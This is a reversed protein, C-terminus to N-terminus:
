ASGTTVSLRADLGKGSAAVSADLLATQAGAGSDIIGFSAVGFADTKIVATNSFEGSEFGGKYTKSGQATATADKTAGTAAEYLVVNVSQYPIYDGSTDTVLIDVKSAVGSGAASNADSNETFGLPTNASGSVYVRASTGKMKTTIRVANTDVDAVVHNSAVPNANIASVLEAATAASSDGAGDGIGSVTIPFFNRDGESETGENSVHIVLANNTSVDYNQANGATISAGAAGSTGDSPTNTVAVKSTLINPNSADYMQAPGTKARKGM